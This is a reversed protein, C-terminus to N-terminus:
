SGAPSAMALIEERSMEPWEHVDRAHQNVKRVLQDDSEGTITVGCTCEVIKRM